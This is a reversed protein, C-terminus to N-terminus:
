MEKDTMNKHGEEPKADTRLESSYCEHCLSSRIGKMMAERLEQTFTERTMRRVPRQVRTVYDKAFEQARALETGHPVVEAFIGLEYGKKADILGIDGNMLMARARNPGFFKEYIINVGDIPAAGADKLHRDITYANDGAIIYDCLLASEPHITVPGNLACVVPVPIDLWALPVRTATLYWWDYTVSTPYKPFYTTSMETDSLSVFSDGTGTLIVLENDPDHAIDHCLGLYAAHIAECFRVPGGDTHFQVTLIGLEDRTLRAMGEWKPAYEELYTRYPKYKDYKYM